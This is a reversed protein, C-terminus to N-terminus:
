VAAVASIHGPLADLDARLAIVPGPNTGVDVMLGTSGLPRTVLGAEALRKAVLGTTREEHWSLEPHAHLDRRFEILEASLEDVRASARATLLSDASM